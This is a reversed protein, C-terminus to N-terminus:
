AARRPRTAALLLLIVIPTLFDTVFDARREGARSQRHAHDRRHARRRRRRSIWRRRARDCAARRLVSRPMSARLGLASIPAASRPNSGARRGASRRRWNPRSCSLHGVAAWLGMLGVPFLMLYHLLRDAAFRWTIPRPGRAVAIAAAVLAALWSLIPVASVMHGGLTHQKAEKQGGAGSPGDFGGDSFCSRVQPPLGLRAMSTVTMQAIARRHVNKKEAGASALM